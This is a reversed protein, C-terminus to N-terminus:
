RLCQVYGKRLTISSIKYSLLYSISDFLCDGISYPYSVIRKLGIDINIIAM